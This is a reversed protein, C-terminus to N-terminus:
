LFIMCLSITYFFVQRYLSVMTKGLKMSTNKSLLYSFVINQVVHCCANWLCLQVSAYTENIRQMFSTFDWQTDM